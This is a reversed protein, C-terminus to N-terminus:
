LGREKMYNFIHNGLPSKNLDKYVHNIMTKFTPIINYASTHKSNYMLPILNVLCFIYFYNKHCQHCKTRTPMQAVFHLFDIITVLIGIM